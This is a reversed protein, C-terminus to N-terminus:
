RFTYPDHSIATVESKITPPIDLQANDVVYRVTDINVDQVVGSYTSLYSLRNGAKSGVSPSAAIRSSVPSPLTISARDASTSRRRIVPTIAAPTTTKYHFSSPAHQSTPSPTSQKSALLKSYENTSYRSSQVSDQNSKNTDQSSDSNRHHKSTAPRHVPVAPPVDDTNDYDRDVNGIDNSHGDFNFIANNNYISPSSKVSIRRVM